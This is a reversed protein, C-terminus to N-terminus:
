SEVRESIDDDDDGNKVPGYTKILEERNFVFTNGTVDGVTTRNQTFAAMKMKLEIIKMQIDAKQVLIERAVDLLKANSEIARAKYIAPIKAVGGLADIAHPMIHEIMYEMQRLAHELRGLEKTMPPLEPNKVLSLENNAPIPVLPTEPIVEAEAEVLEAASPIAMGLADAVRQQIKNIRSENTKDSM